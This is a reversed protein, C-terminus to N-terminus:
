PRLDPSGTRDWRGGTPARLALHRTVAGAPGRLAVQRSRATLDGVDGTRVTASTRSALLAVHGDVVDAGGAAALLVGVPHADDRDFAM